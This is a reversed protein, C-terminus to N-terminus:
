KKILGRLGDNIKRIPNKNIKIYTDKDLLISNIKNIYVDKKDLAVIVNNKDARTFLINPNNKTLQKVV